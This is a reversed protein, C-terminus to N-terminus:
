TCPAPGLSMRPSSTSRDRGSQCKRCREVIELDLEGVHVRALVQADRQTRGPVRGLRHLPEPEPDEGLAPPPPLPDLLSRAEGIGVGGVDQGAVEGASIRSQTRTPRGSAARTWCSASRFRRASTATSKSEGRRISAKTSSARAAPSSRSPLTASAATVGANMASRALFSSRRALSERVM